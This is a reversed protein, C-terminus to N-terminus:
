GAAMLDKLDAIVQASHVDPDVKPYHKALLGDPDILFTQRKAIGVGGGIGLYTGYRRSIEGDDDALLSFPLSYEKAFERHSEVDDMSVGLLAINLKRFKFIDDRFSCAETTCGPTFNKPYFYLVVWQGDYDDLQHWDGNQDQLKFAPAPQGEAPSEAAVAPSLLCLCLLTPLISKYVVPRWSLHEIGADATLM